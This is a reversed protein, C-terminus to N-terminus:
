EYHMGPKNPVLCFIEKRFSLFLEDIFSACACVLILFSLPIWFYIFAVSVSISRIWITEFNRLFIEPLVSWNCRSSIVRPTQIHSNDNKQIVRHWPQGSSCSFYWSICYVKLPKFMSPENIVAIKFEKKLGKSFFGMAASRPYNLTIKKKINFNTYQTFEDSNGRHHLELLFM